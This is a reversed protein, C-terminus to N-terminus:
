QACIVMVSVTITVSNFVNPYNGIHLVSVHLYCMRNVFLLCDLFGWIFSIMPSLHCLATIFRCYFFIKYRNLVTIQLVTDHLM